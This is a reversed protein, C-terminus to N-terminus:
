SKGTVRSRSRVSVGRCQLAYRQGGRISLIAQGPDAFLMLTLVLYYSVSKDLGVDALAIVPNLQVVASVHDLDTAM